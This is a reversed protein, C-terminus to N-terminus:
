RLEGSKRWFWAAYPLTLLAGAVSAKLLWPTVLGAANFGAAWAGTVALVSLAALLFFLHFHKLSM